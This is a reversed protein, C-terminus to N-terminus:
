SQPFLTLPMFIRKLPAAENRKFSPMLENYRFWQEVNYTKSNLINIAIVDYTPKNDTM